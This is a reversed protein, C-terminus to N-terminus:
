HRAAILKALAIFEECGMTHLAAVAAASGLLSLFARRSLSSM